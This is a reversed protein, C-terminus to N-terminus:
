RPVNRRVQTTRNFIYTQKPFQHNVWSGKKTEAALILSSTTVQPVHWDRPLRLTVSRVALRAAMTATPNSSLKIDENYSQAETYTSKTRVERQLM